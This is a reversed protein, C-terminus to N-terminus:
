EVDNGMFAKLRELILNEFDSNALDKASFIADYTAVDGM